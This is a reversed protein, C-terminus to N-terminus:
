SLPTDRLPDREGSHLEDQLHQCGRHGRQHDGQRGEALGESDVMVKVRYERSVVTITDGLIQEAEANSDEEEILSDKALVEFREKDLTDFLVFTTLSNYVLLSM